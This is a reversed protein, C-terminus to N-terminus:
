NPVPSRWVHAETLGALWSSGLLAPPSLRGSRYPGQPAVDTWPAWAKLLGTCHCGAIGQGQSFHDFNVICSEAKWVIYFVDLCSHSTQLSLMFESWVRAGLILGDYKLQELIFTVTRNRRTTKLYKKLNELIRFESVENFVYSSGWEVQDVLQLYKM